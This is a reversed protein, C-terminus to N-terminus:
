WYPSCDMEVKVRVKSPDFGQSLNDNTENEVEQKVMGSGKAVSSSIHSSSSREVRRKKIKKQEGLVNADVGSETVRKPAKNKMNEISRAVDRLLELEENRDM